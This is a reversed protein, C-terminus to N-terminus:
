RRSIMDCEVARGIQVGGRVLCRVNNLLSRANLLFPSDALVSIWVLLIGIRPRIRHDPSDGGLRQEILIAPGPVLAADCPAATCASKQDLALRPQSMYAPMFSSPAGNARLSIRQRM